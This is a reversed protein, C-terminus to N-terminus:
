KLSSKGCNMIFYNHMKRDCWNQKLAHSDNLTIGLTFFCCLHIYFGQHTELPLEMLDLRIPSIAKWYRKGRHHFLSFLVIDLRFNFGSPGVLETQGHGVTVFFLARM